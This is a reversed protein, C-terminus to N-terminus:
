TKCTRRLVRRVVAWRAGVADRGSCLVATALQSKLRYAAAAEQGFLGRGYDPPHVLGFVCMSTAVGLAVLGAVAVRRKRYPMSQTPQQVGPDTASVVIM